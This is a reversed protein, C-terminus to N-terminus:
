PEHDRDSQHKLSTWDLELVWRNANHDFHVVGRGLLNDADGSNDADESYVTLVLGEQLQIGHRELDELTGRTTLLLRRDNDTKMFDVWVRPTENM